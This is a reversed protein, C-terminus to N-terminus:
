WARSERLIYRQSQNGGKWDERGFISTFKSVINGIFAPMRGHSHIIDIKNKKVLKILSIITKILSLINKSKMALKVHEIEDDILEKEYLGGSSAVICEIDNKKLIQVLNILHTEAGGIDISDILM